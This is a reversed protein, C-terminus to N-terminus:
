HGPMLPRLAGTRGLSTSTSSTSRSRPLTTRSGM